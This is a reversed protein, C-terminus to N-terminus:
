AKYRTIIVYYQPAVHPVLTAWVATCGTKESYINIGLDQSNCMIFLSPKIGYWMKGCLRWGSKSGLLLSSCTHTHRTRSVYCFYWQAFWMMTLRLNQAMSQMRWPKMYM